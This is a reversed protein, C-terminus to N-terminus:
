FNVNVGAFMQRGIVDFSSNTTGTDRYQHSFGMAPPEQDFVNNMGVYLKVSETMNYSARMDVLFSSDINNLNDNLVQNVNRDVTKDKYRIQTFFNFNELTYDLNLNLQYEPFLVEGKRDTKDGSSGTIEYQTLINGVLSLVMDGSFVDDFSYSAEIDLGSTELTDENNSVVDVELTAGSRSDRLVDGGCTQDFSGSSVNFCRDLVLSVSPLQIADKIKISYYDLALSFAPLSEPTFVTGLTYSKATEEKVKTSGTNFIKTGQTEIQSLNFAGQDAIRDSIAGISRCNEAINGTTSADIGNCPDAITGAKALRGAYLDSINPARVATSLAGRFRLSETLASNFGIKWTGIGGVSSYDGYRGAVNLSLKEHLPILLEGYVETTDFEGATPLITLIRTLGKQRLGDPTEEGKEKRYEAGLAFQVNEDNNVSFGTDGSLVANVVTQEVSGNIGTKAELYSKAEESFGTVGALGATSDVTNFPNYPVCGQIIALQSSCQFGGAGDPEISLATAARELNIDGFNKQNQDTLGYVASVDLVIDDNFYYELAAAVRATSRVNSAGLPGFEVVRRFTNGIDDLSTLGAALFQEGASSGEWLPHTALDMGSTGGRNVSFTENVTNLPLPEFQTNSEVRSYNIEMTATAKESLDLTLGASAVKRTSPLALTWYDNFNLRDTTAINRSGEFPSGDGKISLGGGLLRSDAIFSSGEFQLEDALGDNNTDVGTQSYRSWDRDKTMVSGTDVYEMSFWANGEEFVKGMTLSVKSTDRDGESSVGKQADILVGNINSKTIINIVGAVADSGYVASQAGTLVEVREITSQPIANLDVGYGAGASTGSVFRRGNLLVLTRSSDLNRLAATSLGTSQPNNGATSSDNADATISPLRALYNSISTEGLKSILDGDLISVPSTASYTESRISSGTVHIVEVEKEAKPEVNALVSQSCLSIGVAVTLGMALKIEKAMMSLKKDKFLYELQNKNCSTNKM